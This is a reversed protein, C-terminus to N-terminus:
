PILLERDRPFPSALRVHGLNLLRATFREIGLAFGGHPPMGYRFAELYFDLGAPDMGCRTMNAVLEDHDHVRLGGTCIEEGRFLLDFTSAANPDHPSLRDHFPRAAAPYDTIFVFEAGTTEKVYQGLLFEDAPSLDDGRGERGFVGLLVERAQALPLRPIFGPAPLRADLLELEPFRRQRLGHLAFRVMRELLDMLEGPDAVFATEAELVTFEALHRPSPADERRFAPGVEFVREFGAGILMQKYLSSGEALCARQAFFDLDFSANPERGTRFAAVVRPTRVELFGDAHLFSRMLAVLEDQIRFVAQVAPHRLAVIRNEWAAPGQPPDPWGPDLPPEHRPRSLVELREAEIAVGGPALPSSRVEGTVSVVAERRLQEAERGVGPRVIAQVFGSRDRVMLHVEGPRRHLRHVWGQVTVREGRRDSIRGILVRGNM